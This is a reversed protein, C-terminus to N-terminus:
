LHPLQPGTLTFSEGLTACSSLSLGLILVPKWSLPQEKLWVAELTSLPGVLPTHPQTVVISLLAQILVSSRKEHRSESSLAGAEALESVLSVLGTLM